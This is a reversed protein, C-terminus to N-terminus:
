PQVLSPLSKLYQKLEIFAVEAQDDWQFGDEKCLLKYFAMGREGLKSKFRSLAAMM